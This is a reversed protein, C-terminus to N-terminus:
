ELVYIDRLCIDLIYVGLKVGLFLYNDKNIEDIVFLM